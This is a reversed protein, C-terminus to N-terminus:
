IVSLMQKQSMGQWWFLLIILCSVWLLQGSLRLGKNIRFCLLLIYAGLLYMFITSVPFPFAGLANRVYSLVNYQGMPAAIQYNPMGGFMSNTWFTQGEGRANYDMTEKAMYNWSELDHGLLTKGQMVPACYIFALALFSLVIIVQVGVARKNM